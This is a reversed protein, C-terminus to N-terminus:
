GYYPRPAENTQQQRLSPQRSPQRLHPPLAAAPAGGRGGQQQQQQSAPGYPAYLARQSGSLGGAGGGAVPPQAAQPQAYMVGYPLPPPAQPPPYRAPLPQPYQQQPYQQQLSVPRQPQPLPAPDDYSSDAPPATPRPPAAAAPTPRRPPLPVQRVQM